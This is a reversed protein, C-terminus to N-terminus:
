LFANCDWVSSGDCNATFVGAQIGQGTECNAPNFNWRLTLPGGCGVFAWWNLNHPVGVGFCLNPFPFTVNPMVPNNCTFGNLDGISCIVGAGECTFSGPCQADSSQNLSIVCVLTFLLRKLMSLQNINLYINSTRQIIPSISKFVM